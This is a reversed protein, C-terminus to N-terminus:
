NVVCVKLVYLILAWVIAYSWMINNVLQAWSENFSQVNEDCTSLKQCLFHHAIISIKHKVIKIWQKTINDSHELYRKTWWNLEERLEAQEEGEGKMSRRRNTKTKEMKNGQNGGTQGESVSGSCRCISVKFSTAPELIRVTFVRSCYKYYILKISRQHLHYWHFKHQSVKGDKTFCSHSLVVGGCVGGGEGWREVAGGWLLEGSSVTTSFGLVTKEIHRPRRGRSYYLGSQFLTHATCHYHTATCTHTHTRPQTHVTKYTKTYGSYCLYFSGQSILQFLTLTKLHVM